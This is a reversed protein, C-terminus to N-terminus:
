ASNITSNIEFIECYFFSFSLIVLINRIIREIANVIHEILKANSLGILVSFCLVLVKNFFSHSYNRKVLVIITKNNKDKIVKGNIIKKPM